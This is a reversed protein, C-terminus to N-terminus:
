ATLNEWKFNAMMALSMMCSCNNETLCQSAIGSFKGNQNINTKLKSKNFWKMRRISYALSCNRKQNPRYPLSNPIKICYNSTLFIINIVFLTLRTPCKYHTHPFYFEFRSAQLNDLKNKTCTLQTQVESLFCLREM